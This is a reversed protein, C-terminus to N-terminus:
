QGALHSDVDWSNIHLQLSTQKEKYSFYVVQAEAWQSASYAPWPTGHNALRLISFLSLQHHWKTWTQLGSFLLISISYIRNQSQLSYFWSCWHGLVSFPPHGLEVLPLNAREKGQKIWAKLPNSSQGGVKSLPIKIWDASEFALGRQFCGWLWM